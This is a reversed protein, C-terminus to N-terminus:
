LAKSTCTQFKRVFNKRYAVCSNVVHALCGLTSDSAVFARSFVTGDRQIKSENTTGIERKM